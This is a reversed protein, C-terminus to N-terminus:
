TREAALMVRTRGLGLSRLKIRFLAFSALSRRHGLIFNGSTQFKVATETKAPGAQDIGIREYRSGSKEV